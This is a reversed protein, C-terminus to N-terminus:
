SFQGIDEMAQWVQDVIKEAAQKVTEDAEPVTYGHFRELMSCDNFSDGMTYVQEQPVALFNQLFEVAQGKSVGEAVIDVFQQNQVPSCPIGSEKVAQCVRAAQELNEYEANVMFIYPELAGGQLPKPKRKRVTQAFGTWARNEAFAAYHHEMGHVEVVIASYANLLEALRVASAELPQCFLIEGCSDQIWAGNFGVLYDYCRPDEPFDKPNRGSVFAFVHSERWRRLMDYNEKVAPINYGKHFTGDYDSAFLKRGSEKIDAPFLIKQEKRVADLIRAKLLSIRNEEEPWANEKIMRCFAELEYIMNNRYKGNDQGREEKEADYVIRTGSHDVLLIRAPNQIHDILLSASEGQIQSWGYGDSIKSYSVEGIMGRNQYLLLINGMGDVGNCLRLGVSSIKEPMGFLAAMAHIPYSGIDMLAGNSLQPRFANQVQGNKFADYRSSYQCYRFSARRIKGLDELHKKIEEMGQDFMMRMAELFVVNKERALKLLEKLEQENSTCPKECLVHKGHELMQKAQRYHYANPSAIYVADVEPDKALADLNSCTKKAGWMRRFEEATEESRSYVTTYQFDRCQAAAELFRHVILSTGITAFRIM